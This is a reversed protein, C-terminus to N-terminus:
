PDDGGGGLLLERRLRANRATKEEVAEKLMIYRAQNASLEAHRISKLAAREADKHKRRALLAQVDLLASEALMLSEPALGPAGAQKAAEIASEARGIQASPVSSADTRAQASGLYLFLAVSLPYLLRRYLRYDLHAAGAGRLKL